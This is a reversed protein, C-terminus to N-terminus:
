AAPKKKKLRLAKRLPSEEGDKTVAVCDGDSQSHERAVLVDTTRRDVGMLPKLVRAHRVPQTLGRLALARQGDHRDIPRVPAPAPPRAHAGGALDPRDQQAPRLLDPLQYAHLEHAAPARITTVFTLPDQTGRRSGDAWFEFVM